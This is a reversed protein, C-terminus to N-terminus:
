ASLWFILLGSPSTFFWLQKSHLTNRGWKTFVVRNTKIKLDELRVQTGAGPCDLYSMFLLLVGKM